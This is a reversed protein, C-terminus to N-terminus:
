FCFPNRSPIKTQTKSSSETITKPSNPEIDPDADICVTHEPLGTMLESDMHDPDLAPVVIVVDGCGDHQLSSHGVYQPPISSCVVVDVVCFVIQSYLSNHSTEFSQKVKVNCTEQYSQWSGFLRSANATTKAAIVNGRIDEHDTFETGFITKRSSNAKALHFYFICLERQFEM